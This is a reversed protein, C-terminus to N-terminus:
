PFLGRRRISVGAAWPQIAFYALVTDIDSSGAKGLVAYVEPHGELPGAVSKTLTPNDALLADVATCPAYSQLDCSSPPTYGSAIAFGLPTLAVDADTLVYDILAKPMKSPDITTARAAADLIGSSLTPVKHPMLDGSAVTRAAIRIAAADETCGSLEYSQAMKEADSQTVANTLIRNVLATRADLSLCTASTTPTGGNIKRGAFNGVLAGLIGGLISGSFLGAALAGIATLGLM